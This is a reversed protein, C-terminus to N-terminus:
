QPGSRRSKMRYFTRRASRLPETIRWSVSNKVRDSDAQAAALQARVTRLQAEVDALRPEVRQLRGELQRLKRADAESKDHRAELSPAIGMM